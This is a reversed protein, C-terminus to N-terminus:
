EEIIHIIAPLQREQSKAKSVFDKIGFNSEPSIIKMQKKM